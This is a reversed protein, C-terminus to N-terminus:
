RWWRWRTRGTRATALLGRGALAQELARVDQDAQGHPVAFWGAYRAVAHDRDPATLLVHLAIAATHGLQTWQGSREDLLAGGEQTLVPHVGDRLRM